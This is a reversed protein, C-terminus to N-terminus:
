LRFTVSEVGGRRFEVRRVYRLYLEKRQHIPMAMLAAPNRLAELVKEDASGPVVQPSSTQPLQAQLMEIQARLHGGDDGMQNILVSIQTIAAELKVRAPNPTQGDSAMGAKLDALIEEAREALRELVFAEAEAQRIGKKVSRDKILNLERSPCWTKDEPGTCPQHRNRCFAYFDECGYRFSRKWAYSGGCEACYSIGSLPYIHKVKSPNRSQAVRFSISILEEIEPSILREHTDRILITPAGYHDGPKALASMKKKATRLKDPQVTRKTTGAYYRLYPTHGCLVENKIWHCFGSNTWAKGLEAGVRVVARRRIFEEEVLIEISRVAVDWVTMGPINQWPSLDPMYKKDESRAYGFPPKPHARGLHRDYARSRSVRSSIRRSEAESKVADGVFDGWDDHSYTGNPGVIYARGKSIVYLSVKHREFLKWIRSLVEMERGLRSVETVVIGDISGAAINGLLRSFAPRNHENDDWGSQIDVYDPEDPAVKDAEILAMRTELMQRALADSSRAQEESSVRNYAVWREGPLFVM